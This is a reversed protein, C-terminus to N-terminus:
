DSSLEFYAWKFNMILSIHPIILNKKKLAHPINAFIPIVPMEELLIEEAKLYFLQRKQPDIEREAQYLIEQYKPNEWKAFNTPDRAERFANLTYIPDNVWSQWAIGGLQFDGETLKSFLINWELPNVICQIGFAIEWYEKIKEGIKNLHLGALHIFTIVPFDQPSLELEDLAERYLVRAKELDFTSLFSEQVLSHCPPLPSITSLIGFALALETRNIALAFAQRLKKNNFPPKQFNFACWYVHSKNSFTISEEKESPTVSSDWTSLPVGVWHSNNKQFLEYAQHRNTKLVMIQDLQINRADWYLPNKVFEYGQQPHNKRLQFAGNCIFSENEEQSWNPHLQDKLRHVPSYIPHATLELFYPTPSRLEIKLTLDDLAQIGVSDLSVVGEKALKASKIPYFLYAFPTKFAPSLIKKWAYEFDFASIVSGDSWRTYKLYFTYTKFDSSIDVKKAIGYEIQGDRNERMLGEFILKLLLSSIHDGGIRPDLSVIPNELGLRLVQQKELSRQWDKLAQELLQIFQDQLSKQKVALIYSFLTTNHQNVISTVAQTQDLELSNFLQEMTEKFNVDPIHIILFLQGEDQRFKLFYDSSKTINFRMGELFLEFLLKMSTLPLTAQAEIPSLSYFFNELLDPNQLSLRPFAEMFSILGERQKLIIGGNFDRFEGIAEVLISRIKERILYFNLSLDARLLSPDKPLSIRFVNAEVPYNQRLYRVIQCREPFYTFGGQVKSFLETLSPLEGEGVRILIITFFAEKSTQQDFLIMVQPLDSLQQIERSLTLINRLVEEENRTMFIRPVLQEICFKIEQKLLGRLRKIEEVSFPLGSKKDVEFYLTKIMSKPSQFAYVSGKVLQAESISKRITLLVHDEDFAEYKDKLCAHALIGLVPKSGFTFQLSYPMLRVDYGDKLPFLASNQRLKKRIFYISYALQALCKSHHQNIFDVELIAAIRDLEKFIGVEIANPFKKYLQELFERAISLKTENSIYSLSQDARRILDPLQQISSYSASTINPHTKQAMVVLKHDKTDPQQL